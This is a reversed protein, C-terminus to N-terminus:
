GHAHALLVMMLSLLVLTERDKDLEAQKVITYRSGPFSWQRDVRMVVAGVTDHVLFAPNFLRSFPSTPSISTLLGGLVRAWTRVERIAMIRSTGELISYHSKWLSAVIDRRVCGLDNGDLDSFCYRRSIGPVPGASVRYLPQTKQMDAFVTFKILELITRQVCFVPEGSADTIFVEFAM